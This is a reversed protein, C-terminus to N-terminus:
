TELFESQFPTYVFLPTALAIMLFLKFNFENLLYANTEM